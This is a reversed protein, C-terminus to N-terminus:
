ASEMIRETRVEAVWDFDEAHLTQFDKYENLLGTFDLKTAEALDRYGLHLEARWRSALLVIEDWV